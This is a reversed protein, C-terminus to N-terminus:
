HPIFKLGREFIKKGGMGGLGVMSCYPALAIAPPFAASAAADLAYCAGAVMGVELITSLSNKLADCSVEEMLQSDPKGVFCRKVGDTADKIIYGVQEGTSSFSEGIEPLPNAPMASAPPTIGFFAITLVLVLTIVRRLM